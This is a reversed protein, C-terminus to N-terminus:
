KILYTYTEIPNEDYMYNYRGGPSLKIGVRNKPWIRTLADIVELIFRARNEISGVYDDKRKNSESRLFEDLLYGYAAHIEVGDFGAEKALNAANTFEGIVTKIDEKSM